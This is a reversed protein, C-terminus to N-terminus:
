AAANEQILGAEHRYSAAPRAPHDRNLITPLGAVERPDLGFQILQLRGIRETLLLSGNPLFAISWPFEFPGAVEEIAIDAGADAEGIQEPQNGEITAHAPVPPLPASLSLLALLGSLCITKM